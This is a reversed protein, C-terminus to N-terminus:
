SVQLTKSAFDWDEWVKPLLLPIEIKAFPDPKLLALAYATAAAKSTAREKEIQREKEEAKELKDLTRLSYCVMDKGRLKLFEQQKKFRKICSM